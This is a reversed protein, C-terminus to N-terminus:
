LQWVCLEDKTSSGGRLRKSKLRTANLRTLSSPGPGVRHKVPCDWAILARCRNGPTFGVGDEVPHEVNQFCLMHRGQNRAARWATMTPSMASPPTRIMQSAHMTTQLDTVNRLQENEPIASRRSYRVEDNVNTAAGKKSSLKSGSHLEGIEKSGPMTM